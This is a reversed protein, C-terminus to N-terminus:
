NIEPKRQFLSNEKKEWFINYPQLDGLLLIAYSGNGIGPM